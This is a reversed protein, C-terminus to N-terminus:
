PRGGPTLVPERSASGGTPPSFDGPLHRRRRRWFWGLGIVVFLGVVLVWPIAWFTVAATVPELGPDVDGPAAAADVRVHATLRGQPRVGHVYAVEPYSAGPLLLPLDPLKVLLAKGFPGKVWVQQSGGLKVNGGNHVVFHVTVTGRTVPNLSGGYTARLGHISLNPHLPGSVRLFVRSATRQLLTERQGSKSIAISSLSAIIGGAYDGPPAGAPVRLTLPIIVASPGKVTRAPVRVTSPGSLTIWRGLDKPPDTPSALAFGGSADAFAQVPYVSLLLPRTSANLVAVEDTLRAGPTAQYTFTPRGDQKHHSAPAVGFTAVFQGKGPAPSGVAGQSSAPSPSSSPGSDTAVADAMPSAVATLLCLPLSLLLVRRARARLASM